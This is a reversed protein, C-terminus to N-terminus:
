YCYSEWQGLGSKAPEDLTNWKRANRMWKQFAADWDAFKSGEATHHEKFLPLQGNLQNASFKNETAWRAMRETIQFSEPLAIKPKSSYSKNNKKESPSPIIERTRTNSGRPNQGELKPLTQDFKPSVKPYTQDFNGMVKTFTQDFKPFLTRAGRANIKLSKTLIEETLKTYGYEQCCFLVTCFKGYGEYGFETMIEAMVEDFPSVATFVKV